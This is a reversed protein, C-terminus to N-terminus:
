WRVSNAALSGPTKVTGEGVLGEAFFVGVWLPPSTSAGALFRLFDGEIFVLVGALVAGALVAGALVAGALVAGALVAGALVAGALVAGALVAGAL